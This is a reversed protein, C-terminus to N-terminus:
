KIIDLSKKPLNIIFGSDRIDYFDSLNYKIYENM